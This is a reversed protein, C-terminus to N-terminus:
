KTRMQHLFMVKNEKVSIWRVYEKDHLFRHSLGFKIFTMLLILVIDRRETGLASSYLPSYSSFSEFGLSSNISGDYECVRGTNGNSTTKNTLELQHKTVCSSNFNKMCGDAATWGKCHPNDPWIRKSESGPFLCPSKLHSVNKFM